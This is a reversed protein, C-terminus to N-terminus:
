RSGDRRVAVEGEGGFADRAGHDLGREAHADTGAAGVEVDAVAIAAGESIALLSSKECTVAPM